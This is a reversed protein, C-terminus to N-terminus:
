TASRRDCYCRLAICFSSEQACWEAGFPCQCDLRSNSLLHAAPTSVFASRSHAQEAINRSHTPPHMSAGRLWLRPTFMSSSTIIVAEVQGTERRGDGTKQRRDEALSPIRRCMCSGRSEKMAAGRHPLRRRDGGRRREKNKKPKTKNTGVEPQAQPWVALVACCLLM